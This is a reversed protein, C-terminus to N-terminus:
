YSARKGLDEQQDQRWDGVNSDKYDPPMSIDRVEGGQERLIKSPTWVGSWELVGDEKKADMAFRVRRVRRGEGEQDVTNKDRCWDSVVHRFASLLPRTVVAKFVIAKLAQM